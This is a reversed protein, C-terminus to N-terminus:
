DEDNDANGGGSKGPANGSTGPNSGSHGPADGSKGPSNSSNGPANASSGPSSDSRGAGGANSHDPANSYSGSNANGHGPANGINNRANADRVREAIEEATVTEGDYTTFVPEPGPGSVEMARGPAVDAEQGRTIETRVRHVRDSVEVRGREVEVSAGFDDSRVVFRTGKVVTALYPTRVSFHQVNRREADITVEGYGQDVRTRHGEVADVIRIYTDGDIEISEEGRVFTVRGSAVTQIHRADSIVDGRELRQWQSGDYAFVRGRLKEAVWDDAAALSPAGALVLAAIVACVKGGSAKRSAFVPYLHKIM